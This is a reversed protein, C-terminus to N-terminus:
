KDIVVFDEFNASVAQDNKSSLVMLYVQLDSPLAARAERLINWTNGDESYKYTFTDGNRIISFYVTDSPYTIGWEDVIAGNQVLTTGICQCQFDNRTIRVLNNNDGPARAGIGAIQIEKAPNFSVRVRAEFDGKVQDNYSVVPASDDILWQNTNGGATITLHGDTKDILFANNPSNGPRWTLKLNLNSSGDPFAFPILGVTPTKILVVSSPQAGPIVFLLIAALGAIITLISALANLLPSFKDRKWVWILLLGIAVICLLAAATKQM